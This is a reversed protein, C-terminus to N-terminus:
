GGLGLRVAFGIFVVGAAGEVVRLLRPDGGPRRVRSIRRHLLHLVHSLLTLWLAALGLHVAALLAMAPAPAVGAPVFQPLFALLFLAVKPNAGTCLVGMLFHRRLAPAAAPGGPGTGDGSGGGGDAATPPSARLSSWLARGGWVLMLAAGCWRVATFLGPATRLVLAVGSVAPAAPAAGGRLWGAGGPRPAARGGPRRGWPASR